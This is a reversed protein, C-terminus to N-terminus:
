SHTTARKNRLLTSNFVSTGDRMKERAAGSMQFRPVFSVSVTIVDGNLGAPLALEFREVDTALITEVGDYSRCM